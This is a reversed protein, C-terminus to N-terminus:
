RYICKNKYNIKTPWMTILPLKEQSTKRTNNM